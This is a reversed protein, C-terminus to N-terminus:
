GEAVDPGPQRDRLFREIEAILDDGAALRSEDAAAELREVYARTTQDAATAGDLRARLQEAEAQLTGIPLAEGAHHSVARLLAISAAPYAGSVYHPVQAYYGVAPIGAGSVALDIVSICASPVRMTGDPGPAVDARLLGPRSQTGLLPVSRTHPVAAPIAGISVWERIGTARAWAALESALERWRYDPEPGSLILLDRDMARYRRIAVEPWELSTPTGDVIELTPRRSRYDFLRDDDLSAVLPAGDALLAAVTSSAEGADVWADFAAVVIPDRFPGPDAVELFRMRLPYPSRAPRPM